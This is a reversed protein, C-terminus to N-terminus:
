IVCVGALSLVSVLRGAVLLDGTVASMARSALHYLPTYHFVIHPYVHMPHYATKLDTVHAAQWMVIGEGYDLEAPTKLAFMARILFAVLGFALLPGCTVVYFWRVNRM